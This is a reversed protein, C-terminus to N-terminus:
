WIEHTRDMSMRKPAIGRLPCNEVNRNYGVSLFMDLCVEFSGDKKHMNQHKDRPNVEFSRM